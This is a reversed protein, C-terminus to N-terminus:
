KVVPKVQGYNYAVTAGTAGSEVMLALRALKRHGHKLLVYSCFIEIAATGVSYMAFAPKNHVLGSPLIEEHGGSALVRETSIYDLIRTGMTASYLVFDVATPQPPKVPQECHAMSVLVGTWALVICAIALNKLM